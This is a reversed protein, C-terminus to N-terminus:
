TLLFEIFVNFPWPLFLIATTHTMMSCALSCLGRPPRVVIMTKFCVFLIIELHLYFLGVGSRSLPSSYDQLQFRGELGERAFPVRERERGLPRHSATAHGVCCHSNAWCSLKM